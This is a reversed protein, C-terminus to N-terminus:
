CFSMWDGSDKYDEIQLVKTTTKYSAVLSAIDHKITELSAKVLEKRFGKIGLEFVHNASVVRSIIKGLDVSKRQHINVDVTFNLTSKFQDAVNKTLEYTMFFDYLNMINQRHMLKLVMESIQTYLMENSGEFIQFPRSDIIGTSGLSEAKYGDAGLLQTLTQASEQMLDSVYAKMSNAEVASGALNNDISSYGVSRLCMASCITFASQIRSIQFQVQDLEMLAKGSIFRKSCHKIADDLIRRIFGMGMGPFQFRSRHLLDMILKLGTSEPVLKFKEPVQIDVINKGYPILYLGLNNYYEEVYIAQNSQHVDCIFFDIDRALIGNECKHRSTMLWYDAMGTLGQWHKIGKIHFDSGVKVNSTQMNLADSGHDPETIMLGGMNQQTLFRDFIEKKVTEQAYKAVPELFLGYNIGFTLSLPLSEYSAADVMGLIEKVIVGRGGYEKPIAVSLPSNEMIDHLINKPFGRNLSIERINNEDNFINKLKNKFTDLFESFNVQTTIDSIIM